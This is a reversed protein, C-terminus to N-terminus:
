GLRARTARFRPQGRAGFSDRAGGFRTFALAQRRKRRHSPRPQNPGLFAPSSLARAFRAHIRPGARDAAKAYALETPSFGSAVDCARPTGGPPPSSRCSSRGGAARGAKAGGGGEPRGLHPFRAGSTPTNEGDQNPLLWTDLLFICSSRGTVGRSGARPIISKRPGRSGNLAFQLLRPAVRRARDASRDSPRSSRSNQGGWRPM